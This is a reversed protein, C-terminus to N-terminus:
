SIEQWVKYKFTQIPSRFQFQNFTMKSWFLTGYYTFHEEPSITIQNMWTKLPHEM